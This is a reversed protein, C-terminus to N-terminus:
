QIWRISVNKHRRVWEELEGALTSPEVELTLPRGDIVKVLQELIEDAASASVVRVGNLALCVTYSDCEPPIALRSVFRRAEDRSLVYELELASRCTEPISTLPALISIHTTNFRTLEPNHPAYEFVLRGNSENLKNRITRLGHQNSGKPLPATLSNFNKGNDEFIIKNSRVAIRVLSAAGKGPDLTNAALESLITRLADLYTGAITQFETRKFLERLGLEWNRQSLSIQINGLRDFKLLRESSFAEPYFRCAVDEHKNLLAEIDPWFLLEIPYKKQWSNSIQACMDTATKDSPCTTAIKLSKLGQSYQLSTQYIENIDTDKLQRGTLESRLKCQVGIPKEDGELLVTIDVGHQDQGARGYRHASCPRHERELLQECLEEFDQWHSPVRWSKSISM